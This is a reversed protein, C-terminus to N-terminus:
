LPRLDRIRHQATDVLVVDRGEIVVAGRYRDDGSLSYEFDFGRRFVVHGLDDRALRLGHGVVTEDLFQLGERQCARRAAELGAERAKLSDFWFWVIGGLGLVAILEVFTM